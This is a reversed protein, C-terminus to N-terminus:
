LLTLLGVKGGLRIALGECARSRVDGGEQLVREDDRVCAVRAGNEGRSALSHLDRYIMLRVVLALFGADVVRTPLDELAANVAVQVEGASDTLGELM